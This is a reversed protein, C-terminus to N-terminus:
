FANQTELLLVADRGAKLCLTHFPVRVGLLELFKEELGIRDEVFSERAEELRVILDVTKNKCVSGAGFLHAAHILGIGRIEMHCGGAESGSALLYKWNKRQICVVDDAVLRHGRQLLGLASTSKGVGAEGQILLGKGFVEVMTGHVMTEPAFVDELLHFLRSILEETPCPSLFLPLKKRNCLDIWEKGPPYKKHFIVAPIHPTLMRELRKELLSSSLKKMYCVEPRGLVLLCASDDMQFSGALCLGPRIVGFKQIMRDLGREGAILELNLQVCCGQYFDRVIKWQM